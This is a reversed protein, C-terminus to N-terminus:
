WTYEEANSQVRSSDPFSVNQDCVDLRCTRKPIYHQLFTDVIIPINLNVVTSSFSGSPYVHDQSRSVLFCVVDLGSEKHGSIHFSTDSADFRFSFCFYAISFVFSSLALFNRPIYKMSGASSSNVSVISFGRLFNSTGIGAAIGHLDPYECSLIRM